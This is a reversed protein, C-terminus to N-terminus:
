GTLFTSWMFAACFNIFDTILQQCDRDLDITLQDSGNQEGSTTRQGRMTKIDQKDKLLLSMEVSGRNQDLALLIFAGTCKPDIFLLLTKSAKVQYIRHTNNPSQKLDQFAKLLKLYWNLNMSTFNALQPDLTSLDVAQVIQLLRLLEDVLLPAQFQDATGVTLHNKSSGTLQTYNSENNAQLSVPSSTVGSSSGSAQPHAPAVQPAQQMLKQWLYDRRYHLEAARVIREIHSRLNTTKEQLFRLVDMEESSFYGLYTIEEDCIATTKSKPVTPAAENAAALNAISSTHKHGKDDASNSSMAYARKVDHEGESEGTAIHSSSSLNGKSPPERKQQGGEAGEPPASLHRAPAPQTITVQQKMVKYSSSRSIPQGITTNSNSNSPGNSVTLALADAAEEAPTTLDDEESASGPLNISSPLASPPRHHGGVVQQAVQSDVSLGSGGTGENDSNTTTTTFQLGGSTAASQVSPATSLISPPGSLEGSSLFIDNSSHADDLDSPGTATSISGLATSPPPLPPPPLQQQQRRNPVYKSSSCATATTSTQDNATTPSIAIGKQLIQSKAATTNSSLRIPRHCGLSIVNDDPAHVLKPYLDRQNTLLLFYKLSLCNDGSHISMEGGGLAPQSCQCHSHTILLGCDFIDLDKGDRYRVKERKLEILVYDNAHNRYGSGGDPTELKAFTQRQLKAMKELRSLTDNISSSQQNRDGAMMNMSVPSSKTETTMELIDLNYSTNHTVIYNYLQQGDVALDKVVVEGSLIHNRAYNPAKQYYKRFDDVFSILHYGPNFTVARGSIYSYMSRLHYDYTFSHLHMTVKINDLEDLFATMSNMKLDRAASAEMRSSKSGSSSASNNFREGEISYLISYVYPRCFGVKFVLCGNNLFKILYGTNYAPASTAQSVATSGLQGGHKPPTQSTSLSTNVSSAQGSQNTQCNKFTHSEQPSQSFQNSHQAQLDFQTSIRASGKRSPFPSRMKTSSSNHAASTATAAGTNAVSPYRIQVSNFGLTQIYQEYEKIYNICVMQHWREDAMQHESCDVSKGLTDRSLYSDQQNLHQEVPPGASSYSELTHDRVPALKSRWTPSFLLPTLCFHELRGLSDVRKLAQDIASHSQSYNTKSKLVRRYHNTERRESKRRLVEAMHAEHRLGIIEDSNSACGGVGDLNCMLDLSVEEISCPAHKFAELIFNDGTPSAMVNGGSPNLQTTSSSTSFRPAHLSSRVHYQAHNAPNCPGGSGISSGYRMEMVNAGPAANSRNQNNLSSSASSTATANPLSGIPVTAPPSLNEGQQNISSPSLHNQNIRQLRHRGPSLNVPHHHGPTKCYMTITSPQRNVVFSKLLKSQSLSEELIPLEIKYNCRMLFLLKRDQLQKMLPNSENFRAIPQNIFIGCKQLLISNLLQNCPKTQAKPLSDVYEEYIRLFESLNKLQTSVHYKKQTDMDVNHIYYLLDNKHIFLESLYADNLSSFRSKLVTNKIKRLFARFHVIEITKEDSQNLSTPDSLKNLSLIEHDLEDNSVFLKGLYKCPQGFHLSLDADNTECPRPMPTLNDSDSYLFSLVRENLMTSSCRFVFIPCITPSDVNYQDASSAPGVLQMWKAVDKLTTPVFVIMMNEQNRKRMFCRWNIYGDGEEDAQEHSVVTQGDSGSTDVQDGLSAAFGDVQDRGPDNEECSDGHQSTKRKKLYDSLLRRDTNTLKLEKDHMQKLRKHLTELFLHNLSSSCLSNLAYNAYMLQQQQMAGPLTAASQSTGLPTTSYNLNDYSSRHERRGQSPQSGHSQDLMNVDVSTKRMVTKTSQLLRLQEQLQKAPASATTIKSSGATMTRAGIDTARLLGGVDLHKHAHSVPEYFESKNKFLLVNLSAQQCYSLFKVISFKYTLEILPIRTNSDRTNGEILTSPLHSIPLGATTPSSPQATDNMAMNSCFSSSNTPSFPQGTACSSSSQQQESFIDAQYLAIDLEYFPSLKDCLLKLIDYTLLCDFLETDTLYLHDVVEPYRMNELSRHYENGSKASIGYQQETWYERVVKVEGKNHHAVDTVTSSSTINENTLNSSPNKMPFSTDSNALSGSLSAPKSSPIEDKEPPQQPANTSTRANNYILNPKPTSSTVAPPFVIYQCLCTSCHAENAGCSHQSKHSHDQMMLEVVLNLIGSNNFAIHFGQKIRVNVLIASIMALVNSALSQVLDHPLHAITHVVRVGYLYKGFVLNYRNISSDAASYDEIYNDKNASIARSKQQSTAGAQQQQQGGRNERGLITASIKQTNIPHSGPLGLTPNQALSEGILNRSYVKLMRELPSHILVCCSESSPYVNKSKLINENQATSSIRANRLKCNVLQDELFSVIQVRHSDLIGSTFMLYIVVIPLLKNIRIVIFGKTASTEIERLDNSKNYIFKVYTSDELLAFSAYSKIFNSIASLARRCQIHTYRGNANQCHINKHKPQDHELVLRLTHVHMLNKWSKTDLCSINKWYEQFESTKTEDVVNEITSTLKHTHPQEYLLSNGHLLFPPVRSLTADRYFKSLYQLREHTQLVGDILLRFQKNAIDRYESRRKVKKDCYLNHLFSYSGHVFIECFTDGYFPGNFPRLILDRGDNLDFPDSQNKWYPATLEQELDLNHKWHLVLRAVIRSTERHKIHINKILYGERLLCSLVQEFDADLDRELQKYSRWDHYTPNLKMQNHKNDDTLLSLDHRVFASPPFADISQDICFFKAIQEPRMESSLDFFQQHQEQHLDCYSKRNPTASAKPTLCNTDDESLGDSLMLPSVNFDSPGNIDSHLTWCFLKFLPNSVLCMRRTKTLCQSAQILDKYTLYIGQTSKSVFRMLDSYSTYGFPADPSIAEDCLSVFSVAISKLRFINLNNTSAFLGDSIILISLRSLRPMLSASFLGLEYIDELVSGPHRIIGGSMPQPFVFATGNAKTSDYELNIDCSNSVLEHLEHTLRNLCIWIEVTVQDINSASIRRNQILVQNNKAVVFPTYAIVTVFVKPALEFPKCSSTSSPVEQEKILLHLTRRLAEFMSDLFVGGNQPSVTVISPSLDLVISTAISKSLYVVRTNTTVLFNWDGNIGTPKDTTTAATQDFHFSTSQNCNQQSTVSVLYIDKENTDVDNKDISKNERTNSDDDNQYGQDQSSISKSKPSQEDSEIVEIPDCRVTKNLQRLFWSARNRRSVSRRGTILAFLCGAERRCSTLDDNSSVINYQSLREQIM